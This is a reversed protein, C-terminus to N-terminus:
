SLQVENNKNEIETTQNEIKEANNNNDIKTQNKSIKIKIKYIIWYVLKAGCVAVASVITYAALMIVTFIFRLNVSALKEALTSFLPIGSGEYIQMYDASYEYNVPIAILALILMPVWGKIIDKWDLKKYQTCLLFFGVFFMSFHFFLSYFAGFTWFPYWNLGNCQVIGIAGSIMGITTLFALSYDKIKNKGWAVCLLTYIFLSCTYLPLIGGTNFGRGTTIDYYSEFTIKAIEYCVVLISYIKLFLDIKKHSVKRLLISAIPVGIFSLVIFIIHPISFLDSSFNEINYKYDFFHYNM